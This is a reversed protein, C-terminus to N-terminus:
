WKHVSRVIETVLLFLAPVDADKHDISSTNETKFGYTHKWDLCVSANRKSEGVALELKWQQSWCGSSYLYRKRLASVWVRM